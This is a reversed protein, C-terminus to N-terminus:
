AHDKAHHLDRLKEVLRDITALQKASLKTFGRAGIVFRSEWDTLVDLYRRLLALKQETAKPERWRKTNSRVKSSRGSTCSARCNSQPKTEAPILVDRWTLGRKRVLEDAKAAAAAREGDYDSGFRGCIKALRQVDAPDLLATM